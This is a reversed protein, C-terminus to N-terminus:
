CSKRSGCIHLQAAMCTVLKKNCKAISCTQKIVANCKSTYAPIYQILLEDTCMLLHSDCTHSVLATAVGMCMHRTGGTQTHMLLGLESQRAVSSCHSAKCMKRLNETYSSSILTLLSSKFLHKSDVSCCPSYACTTTPCM